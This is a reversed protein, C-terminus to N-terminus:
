LESTLIDFFNAVLTAIGFTKGGEEGGGAQIAIVNGTGDIIPAGNTGRLSRQEDFKYLVWDDEFSDTIASHLQSNVGPIDAALWVREGIKPLRPSLSRATSHFLEDRILACIMVDGHASSIPFPTTQSIAIPRIPVESLTKKTQCDFLSLGNWRHSLENGSINTSLGGIPGLLQLASLIMTGDRGPIRAAFATGATVTGQTTVFTPRFLQGETIALPNNQSDLTAVPDSSVPSTGQDSAPSVDHQAVLRYRDSLHRRQYHKLLYWGLWGVCFFAVLVGIIRKARKSLAFKTGAFGALGSGELSKSGPRNLQELFLGALVAPDTPQTKEAQLSTISEPTETPNAERALEAQFQRARRLERIKDLWFSADVWAGNAGTRVETGVCPDAILLEHAKTFTFPGQIVNGKKIYIGNTVLEAIKRRIVEAPHWDSTGQRVCLSPDTSQMVIQRMLVEPLPGQVQDNEKIFWDSLEESM